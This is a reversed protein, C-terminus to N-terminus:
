VLVKNLVDLPLGNFWEIAKKCAHCDDISKKCGAAHKHLAKAISQEHLASTPTRQTFKVGACAPCVKKEKVTESGAGVVHGEADKYEVERTLVVVSHQPVRAPTAEKCSACRYSM